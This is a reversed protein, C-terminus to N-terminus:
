WGASTTSIRSRFTPDYPDFPGEEDILDSHAALLRQDEDALPIRDASGEPDKMQNSGKKAMQIVVYRGKAIGCSVFAPRLLGIGVGECEASM